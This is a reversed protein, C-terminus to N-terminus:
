VDSTLPEFGTLAALDRVLEYRLTWRGRLEPSYGYRQVLDGDSGTRWAQGADLFDETGVDHVGLDPDTRVWRGGPGGTLHECVVHSQWHGPTLYGAFGFRVRAPVGHERLVACMVVALSRCDVVLRHGARRPRDWPRDDLATIRDLLARVPRLETGDDRRGTGAAFGEVRTHHVLVAQLLPVLQRPGTPLSRLLEAHAGPRTVGTHAAYADDDHVAGAVPRRPSGPAAEGTM